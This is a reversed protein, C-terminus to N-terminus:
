TPSFESQIIQRDFPEGVHDEFKILYNLYKCSSYKTSETWKIHNIWNM